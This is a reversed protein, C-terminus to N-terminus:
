KEGMEFNNVKKRRNYNVFGVILKESSREDASSQTESTYYGGAVRDPKTKTYLSLATKDQTAKKAYGTL